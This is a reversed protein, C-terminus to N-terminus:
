IQVDYTVRKADEWPHTINLGTDTRFSASVPANLDVETVTHESGDPGVIVNGVHLHILPLTRTEVDLTNV